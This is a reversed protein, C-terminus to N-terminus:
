ESVIDTIYTSINKTTVGGKGLWSIYVTLKKTKPDIDGINSIDKNTSDRKVDELVFWRSFGDVQGKGNLAKWSSSAVDFSLYYNQNTSINSINNWDNDRVIKVAEIGEEALYAAQTFKLNDGAGSLYMNSVLILSSLIITFIFVAVLVEVLGIGKKFNIKM